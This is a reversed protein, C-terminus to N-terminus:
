FHFQGCLPWSFTASKESVGGHHTKTGLLQIEEKIAEYQRTKKEGKDSIFSFLFCQIM